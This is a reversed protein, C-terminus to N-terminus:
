LIEGTLSKKEYCSLFTYVIEENPEVIDCIYKKQNPIDILVLFPFVERIKLVEECLSASLDSDNAYFFSINEDVLNDKQKVSYYDAIPSMVKIAQEIQESSGDLIIYILVLYHAYIYVCVQLGCLPLVIM